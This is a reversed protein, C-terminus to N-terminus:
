KLGEQLNRKERIVTKIRAIDRKAERIRNPNDVKSDQRMSNRLEFIEKSLDLATLELEEVAQDRYIQAKAM